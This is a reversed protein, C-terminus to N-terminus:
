LAAGDGQVVTAPDIRLVRRAAAFSAVLALVVVAVATTAVTSPVLQAGLGGIDTVALVLWALATGAVIGGGVVVVVQWLLAAVLQGRPAGLARLLTLSRAKQVTLILFFFGTVLTVVLFVLLLVLGLSQQVSAVGPAEAAADARSLAELVQGRENVREVLEDPSGEAVLVAASPPVDTAEPNQVRRAAAYTEFAVFLTPSVNFNVDEALGVIEIEDGDPVVVVRDGVDFGDAADRSSAVAEGPREPLRGEVLTAPGGPSGLEYGFIAADTTTGGAEVTFTGVGLPGGDAVGDLDVLAEVEAEPVVSADATRRAQTDYVVVDADLNRLGGAFQAVLGDLLAQQFVILFVLFGIAATLLAFRGKSRRVEVLALRLSSMAAGSRGRPEGAWRM